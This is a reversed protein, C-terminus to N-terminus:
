NSQSEPYGRHEKPAFGFFDNHLRVYDDWTDMDRVVYASTVPVRDVESQHASFFSRLGGEGTLQLLEGRFLGDILVPHGGREQWTPVVLRAGTRWHEILQAVVNAPVAAHDVPTILFAASHPTAAVGLRISESMPSEPLPNVVFLVEENQLFTRLEDARHGIVVVITQVGGARLYKITHEIVTQDGFPLLPKFAGM